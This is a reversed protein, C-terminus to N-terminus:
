GSQESEAGICNGRRLGSEFLGRVAGPCTCRYRGTSCQDITTTRAIDMDASQFRRYECRAHDAGGPVARALNVAHLSAAEQGATTIPQSLPTPVYYREGPRHPLARHLRARRVVVSRVWSAM